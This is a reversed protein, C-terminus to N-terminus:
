ALEKKVGDLYLPDPLISKNNEWLLIVRESEKQCVYCIEEVLKEDDNYTFQLKAFGQIAKLLRNMIKEQPHLEFYTFADELIRVLYDITQRRNEGQYTRWLSTSWSGHHVIQQSTTSFTQGAELSALSDIIHWLKEDSYM